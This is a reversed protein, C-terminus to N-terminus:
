GALRRLAPDEQLAQPIERRVIERFTETDVTM